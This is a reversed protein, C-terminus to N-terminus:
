DHPYVERLEVTYDGWLPQPTGENLLNTSWAFKPSPSSTVWFSSTVLEGDDSNPLLFSCAIPQRMGKRCAEFFQSKEDSNFWGYQYKIIWVNGVIEKVMRGSAMTISSSLEEERIEYGGNKSEPLVMGDIILQTM